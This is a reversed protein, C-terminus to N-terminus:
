LKDEDKDHYDYYRYLHFYTNGGVYKSLCEEVIDYMKKM